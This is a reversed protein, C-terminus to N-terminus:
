RDETGAGAGVPLRGLSTELEGLWRKAAAYIIQTEVSSTMWRVGRGIWEAATAPEEAFFGIVKGHGEARRCADAVLDIVLPHQTQGTVGLAQSLDYPALSIVDVGPVELIGDLEAVADTGELLVNVITSANADAYFGSDKTASYTAARVFPCVGRMGQPAFKAAAVAAEAAAVGDVHPVIILDAGLNLATSIHEPTNSPVRIGSTIGAAAAARMMHETTELNLAGHELDAVAFDFGAAGFIEVLGPAPLQILPGVVAEGGAWKAKLAAAGEHM